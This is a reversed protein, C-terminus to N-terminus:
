ANICELEGYSLSLCARIHALISFSPTAETMYGGLFGFGLSVLCPNISDFMLVFGLGCTEFGLELLVTM